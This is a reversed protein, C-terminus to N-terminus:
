DVLLWKTLLKVKEDFLEFQAHGISQDPQVWSIFFKHHVQGLLYAYSTAGKLLEERQSVTLEGKYSIHDNEQSRRAIFSHSLPKFTSGSTIMNDM